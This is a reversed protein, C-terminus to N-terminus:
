DDDDQVLDEDDDPTLKVIGLDVLRKALSYVDNKDREKRIGIAVMTVTIHLLVDGNAIDEKEARYIARYRSYKISFCGKLAGTLPKHTTFPDCEYLDDIKAIIGRRVKIPLQKLGDKAAGTWQITVRMTM